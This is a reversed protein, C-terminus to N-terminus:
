NQIASRKKITDLINILKPMLYFIQNLYKATLAPDDPYEHAIHNRANRMEKWLEANEIIELRELKNIKDLMTLRDINEENEKLFADILKTGLLDQLKGFRSVFLEIWALENETINNIMSANIPFLHNIHNISLNIRDIHIDAIKIMEHFKNM